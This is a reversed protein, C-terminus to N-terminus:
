NFLSHKIKNMLCNDNTDVEDAPQDKKIYAIWGEEDHISKLMMHFGKPCLAKRYCKVPISVIGHYHMRNHSDLELYKCNIICGKGIWTDFLQKYDTVESRNDKITFAFREM